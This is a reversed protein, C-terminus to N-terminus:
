EEGNYDSNQIDQIIEIADKAFDKHVLLRIVSLNGPVPFSRDKQSYIMSEIEAGRLNEKLMEMEIENDSTLVVVWDEPNVLHGEFNEKTVLETNCDPCVLIGDVYEYECKPCIM